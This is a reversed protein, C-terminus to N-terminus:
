IVQQITGAFSIGAAAFAPQGLVGFINQLGIRKYIDKGAQNAKALHRCRLPDLFEACCTYCSFWILCTVSLMWAMGSNEVLVRRLDRRM